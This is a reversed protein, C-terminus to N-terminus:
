TFGYPTGDAYTGAQFEIAVLGVNDLLAYLKENHSTGSKDEAMAENMLSEIAPSLYVVGNHYTVTKSGKLYPSVIVQIGLREREAARFLDALTKWERSQVALKRADLEQAPDAKKSSGEATM